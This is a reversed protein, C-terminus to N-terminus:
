ELPSYVTRIFEDGDRTVQVVMNVDAIEKGEASLSAILLGTCAGCVGCHARKVVLDVIARTHSAAAGCTDLLSSSPLLPVQM